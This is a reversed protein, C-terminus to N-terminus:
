KNNTWQMLFLGVFIILVKSKYSKDNNIVRKKVHKFSFTRFRKQM